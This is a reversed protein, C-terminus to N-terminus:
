VGDFSLLKKAEFIALGLAINYYVRDHRGEGNKAKCGPVTVVTAEIGGGKEVLIRPETLWYPNRPDSSSWVM